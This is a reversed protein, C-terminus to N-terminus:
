RAATQDASRRLRAGAWNAMDCNYGNGADTVVLRLQKAGALSVEVQQTGKLGQMVGSDFVTKEDAVVRFVVTGGSEAGGVHAVFRDYEGDLRYAIESPAHTGIGKGYRRAGLRLPGNTVDRDRRPLGDRNPTWGAKASQWDLDSLWVWQDSPLTAPVRPTPPPPPPIEVLQTEASTGRLSRLDARPHRKLEDHLSTLAALMARYDSDEKSALVAGDCREWGGASQALPAMLARSLKPDRRNLTLWWTSGAGDGQGHCGKCRREYVARLTKGQAGSFIRRNPWHYTRYTDYYVGNADIWATIRRFEEDSLKVGHHGARLMKTLPSVKSGYTYPPRPHVDDPHDWRDSIAVTIHGLLEQYGLSFRDTLDDTLIVRNRARDHTHCRVCHKNIVPQVDRLYSIIKHGWPPPHYASPARTAAVAPRNAPSTLRSEHCGICTRVERPKLCVVSRMRQIELGDADLVEFYVNRNAPVTFRASGDPEIPVTGFIRKITFILTGATKVVGGTTVGKRPVDEVVRLSRATGRPVGDLGDYVDLLLMEAEADLSGTDEPAPPRPHPAARSVIPVPEMCSIDPDRYVLGINGHADGVYLAWTWPHWPVVTPTFACLYSTESLPQPDSFWGRRSDLAKEGTIPIGPTLVTLPENGDLGRTIDILGIPGHTQGHHATFLAMIQDSGPVPRPFMVVNPRITANGYYPSVMTGDPNMTFPNHLSTVSRENYEWRSYLIRGDELVTPNFDNFVNYSLQRVDSGDANMVFLTPAHRNGGCMVFHESRDSTFGIQGHPLYFPECDNHRDSTLQRLGSGDVNVEYIHYSQKGDWKDSGNGFAFLFRTGSWHLHIDRYVGEGLADVVPMLEGDPRPPSLRYIGGGPPNVLHHADMFPQESTYPKRKALLMADCDIRQRLLEDRLASAREFLSRWERQANSTNPTKQLRDLEARIDALAASAKANPADSLIQEVPAVVSPIHEVHTLIPLRYVQDGHTITLILIGGGPETLRVPFGVTTTKAPEIRVRREDADVDKGAPTWRSLKLVVDIARAEVNRIQVALRNRGFGLDLPADLEVAFPAPKVRFSTLGDFKRYYRHYWHDKGGGGFHQYGLITADPKATAHSDKGDAGVRDVRLKGGTRRVRVRQDRDAHPLSRKPIPNPWVAPEGDAPVPLLPTRDAKPEAKQWAELSREWDRIAVLSERLDWDWRMMRAAPNTTDADGQTAGGVVASLCVLASGLLSM